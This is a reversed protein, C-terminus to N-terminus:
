YDDIYIDFDMLFRSTLFCTTFKSLAAYHLPNRQYEDKLGM